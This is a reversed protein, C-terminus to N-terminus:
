DRSKRAQISEVGVGSHCTLSQHYRENELALVISTGSMADRRISESFFAASSGALIPAAEIMSLGPNDTIVLDICNEDRTGRPNGSM